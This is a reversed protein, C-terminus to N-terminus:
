GVLAASAVANGGCIEPPASVIVWCPCSFGRWERCLDQSFSFGVQVAKVCREVMVIKVCQLSRPEPLTCIWRLGAVFKPVWM